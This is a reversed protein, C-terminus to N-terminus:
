SVKRGTKMRHGDRGGKREEKREQQRGRQRPWETKKWEKGGGKEESVEDQGRKRESDVWEAWRGGGDACM